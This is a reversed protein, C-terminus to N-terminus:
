VYYDSFTRNIDIGDLLNIHAEKYLNVGGQTLIQEKYKKIFDINIVNNDFSEKYIACSYLDSIVYSYFCSEYSDSDFIHDFTNLKKHADKYKIDPMYKTCLNDFIKAMENYNIIHHHHIELDFIARIITFLWSWQMDFNYSKKFNLFLQKTLKQGDNYIPDYIKKLIDFDSAFKEIFQAPIELGDFEVAMGSLSPTDIESLAFHIFHGIEHFLTEIDEQTIVRENNTKRNGFYAFIHSVKDITYEDSYQQTQFCWAGTDKNNREFLDLILSAIKKNNSDFIEYLEIDEHYSEFSDVKKFKINFLNNMLEFCTNKAKSYSYNLVSYSQKNEQYQTSVYELDWDEISKIDLTREAFFKMSKIKKSFSSSFKNAINHLQEIVKEPDKEMLLKMRQQSFSESNSLKTRIDMINEIVSTNKAGIKQTMEFVKKRLARNDSYMLIEMANYSSSNIVFGELGRDKAADQLENILELSLGEFPTKTKYHLFLDAYDQNINKVFSHSFQEAKFKMDSIIKNKDKSNFLKDEFLHIQHIVFQKEGSKLSNFENSEKYSNFLDLFDQDYFFDSTVSSHEADILEFQEIYEKKIIAKTIHNFYNLNRGLLEFYISYPKIFNEWTPEIVNKLDNMRHMFLDVDTHFIDTWQSSDLNHYIDKM